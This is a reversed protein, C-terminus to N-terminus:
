ASGEASPRHYEEIGNIRLIITKRINLEITCHEYFHDKVYEYLEIGTM